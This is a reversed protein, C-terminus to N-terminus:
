AGPDPGRPAPHGGGHLMSVAHALVPALTALAHAAARPSGPLNVVLTQGAMGAVGRSLAAFPTQRQGERRILEALGPALRELIDLTAEPTVDRPGLGTGGTTLVVDCCGDRVWRALHASIQEREDPVLARAVVTWGLEAVGQALVDGAGDDRATRTDSCTLVAVRLGTLLDRQGAM